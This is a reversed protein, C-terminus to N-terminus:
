QGLCYPVLESIHDFEKDAMGESTIHGSRRFATSWGVAAAGKIDTEVTDGVFLIRKGELGGLREALHFIAPNPKQIGIDGSYIRIDLYPLLGAGAFARDMCFGPWWTNAIIGLRFGKESLTRLAHETGPFLWSAYRPGAYADALCAADEPGLPLHLERVTAEMLRLFTYAKGFEQQCLEHQQVLTERLVGLDLNVGMGGLLAHVRKANGSAVQSPSVDADLGPGYLTGGSDFFVCDFRM